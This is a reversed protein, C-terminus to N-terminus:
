QPSFSLRSDRNELFFKAKNLLSNQTHTKKGEFIQCHFDNSPKKLHIEM